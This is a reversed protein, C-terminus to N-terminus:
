LGYKKLKRYLTTRGLGLEKAVRSMNGGFKMLANEIAKKEMENLSINDTSIESQRGSLLIENPLIKSGSALIVARELTHELERVNGPWRWSELKKVSERSLKLSAKRYKKNMKDLFYEALLRIDEKRNSLTPLDIEFTNIRYYLDERFNGKVMEEKLPLNTACILRIDVNFSVSSGVRSIESNQLVSLLKSQLTKDINGVEDLFLTGASALEFRGKKMEKADTFAGKEHGFLESEFLTPAIAGLDVKVFPQDKRNSQEHIRRAVLEKGTGNAGLILVGADTPAVKDAMRIVNKFSASTGILETQGGLDKNLAQNVSKLKNIEKKSNSLNFASTVTAVFKENEWPKVIFDAAGVKMAEVALSLEGYATIMVVSTEPSRKVIESLWTIGEEGSSVGPKFNMDLLVLEFSTNGVLFPIEDPKRTVVVNTFYQKLIFKATQLVGADDDVILVNGIQKTM